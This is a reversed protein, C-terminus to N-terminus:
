LIFLASERSFGYKTIEISRKNTSDYEVFEPDFAM